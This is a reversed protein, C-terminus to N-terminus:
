NANNGGYIRELVSEQTMSDSIRVQDLNALKELRVLGANHLNGL